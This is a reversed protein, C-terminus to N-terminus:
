KILESMKYLPMMIAVMIGGVIVGMVVIMLPELSSTLRRVAADVEVEMIDAVKLLVEALKDSAEGAAIMGKAMSPLFKSQRISDRLAGGEKINQIAINIEERFLESGSIESVIGLGELLDVKSDILIGFNRAFRSVIIKKQLGGILPFRFRIKDWQIRAELKEQWKHFAFVAVVFLLICLHWYSRVTSSIKLVVRTPLPLEAGGFQTFLSEIQPVVGTLLFIVVGIAVVVMLMPYILATIAKSRLETNKEELEALRNLTHEYSGTVEGVRIMNEYVRPFVTPHNAISESLSKGTVVDEKIEGVVKKLAVNNIQEWTDQLAENLPIGAGILTALQKAFLGLDKSSVRYLLKSLMPFFERDRKATDKKLSTVYYQKNRLKSLAVKENPAEIYDEVVGELKNFAKFKYISM